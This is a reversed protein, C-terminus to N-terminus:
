DASRKSKKAVPKEASIDSREDIIEIIDDKEDVAMEGAFGNGSFDTIEEEEEEDDDGSDIYEIHHDVRGVSPASLSSSSDGGGNAGGFFGRIDSGGGSHRKKKWLRDKLIRTEGQHCRTSNPNHSSPSIHTLVINTRINEIFSYL